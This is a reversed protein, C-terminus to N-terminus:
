AEAAEGLSAPVVNGGCVLVGVSEGPRPRYAGSVLAALGTAGAPEAAIRYETWLQRQAARLASDPVLVVHDVAERAIAFALEGARMAGLADAAISHVAVDVPAGAELAAHLCRSGEPEVGVVKVRGRWWSGVGAILGGGGVAVLVTDLPPLGLRAQDEEWELAVTGAGGITGAGEYPHVLLAGSAAVYADCAAQADAYRAGGIVAEAGHRRIADVKAPSAIEPVFIRARHGLRSAAFAVAVGHNGGSAAAVGAARLPAGLLNNFAGRAKFSGACQLHELKLTVTAGNVPDAAFLPTRRVHPAIRAYAERIAVPTVPSLRDPEGGTASTAGPGRALRAELARKAAPWEAALMSYYASDRVAGDAGIKHARLVGDGKAGLRLIAARSRANRADTKWSVRRVRLTEFAHACLLLKAESNVATRQVREAYWTWGIELVDPGAPRPPPPDHPWSWWEIAMFRTTGVVLGSAPAIVVFPLSEGRAEEGLSLEIFARMEAVTAPVRQLGYTARSADAARLLPAAHEIALPELRVDRGSLIVRDLRPM